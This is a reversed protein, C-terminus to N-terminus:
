AKELLVYERTMDTVLCSRTRIGAAQSSALVPTTVFTHNANGIASIAERIIETIQKLLNYPSTTFGIHATQDRM